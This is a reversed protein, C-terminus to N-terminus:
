CSHVLPTYVIYMNCLVDKSVFFSVRCIDYGPVCTCPPFPVVNECLETFFSGDSQCSCFDLLVISLSLLQWSEHMINNYKCLIIITM